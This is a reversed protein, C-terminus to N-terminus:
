VHESIVATAPPHHGQGLGARPEGHPGDCLQLRGQQVAAPILLVNPYSSFQSLEIDMSVM